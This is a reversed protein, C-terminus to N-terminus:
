LSSSASGRYHRLWWPPGTEPHLRGGSPWSPRFPIEARLVRRRAGLLGSGGRGPILFLVRDDEWGLVTDEGSHYTLRRSEGGPAPMVYVDGGGSADSTFAIWRGDPSWEPNAVYGEGPTVCRPEGGPLDALYLM